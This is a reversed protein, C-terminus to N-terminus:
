RRALVSRCSPCKSSRFKGRWDPAGVIRFHAQLLPFAAEFNTGRAYDAVVYPAIWKRLHEECEQASALTQSTERLIARLCHAIRSVDLMSDIQASEYTTPPDADPDVKPQHRVLNRLLHCIRLRRDSVPSHLRTSPSRPLALPSRLKPRDRPLSTATAAGSILIPLDSLEGVQSSTRAGCWGFRDFDLAFRAALAWAATGWLFKSHDKGDVGEEFDFADIRHSERGYPLRLLMGPLVLGIHRSETRQRFRNWRIYEVSEHTQGLLEAEPLQTFSDVGLLTPAAAGLFPVHAAACLRAIKEMLEVHEPAAGSRFRRYCLKFPTAM